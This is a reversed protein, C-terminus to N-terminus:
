KRINKLCLALNRQLVQNRPDLVLGKKCYNAAIEYAGKRFYIGALQNCLLVYDFQLLKKEYNTVPVLNKENIESIKSYLELAKNDNGEKEWLLGEEYYTQLYNPELERAKQFKEKAKIVFKENLYIKGLEFQFFANYPNKEIAKEYYSIGLNKYETYDYYFGGLSRYIFVNEPELEIAKKYEKITNEKNKEEETLIYREAYLDGLKQHPLSDLPNYSITKKYSIIKKEWNNTLKEAKVFYYQSLFKTGNLFFLLIVSFISIFHIKRTLFSTIVEFPTASKEMGIATFSILTLVILPLHLNFDVLAHTLIASSGLLIAYLQWTGSEKIKRHIERFFLYILWIVCFFGAVGLEALIQLYENMAFGPYKGYRAITGHVPFNYRFFITEFTGLGWGFLPKDMANKLAALWINLRTFSYPDNIKLLNTFYSQPASIFFLLVITIPILALGLRKYLHDGRKFSLLLTLVVILSLYGGRSRTLFLAFGFLFLFFLNLIKNSKRLESNFFLNSLVIGSSPVLFGALFNSNPLNARIAKGQFFQIIGFLLFFIGLFIIIKLIKDGLSNDKRLYYLLLYFFLIYNVIQLFSNLTAKPSVSLGLSLFSLIFFFSIPLNLITSSFLGRVGGIYYESLREEPLKNQVVNVGAGFPLVNNTTRPLDKRKIVEKLFILPIFFAFFFESILHKGGNFISIFLFLLIIEM